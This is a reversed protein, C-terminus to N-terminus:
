RCSPWSNPRTRDETRNPGARRSSASPLILSRCPSGGLGPTPLPALFAFPAPEVPVPGRAARANIHSLESAPNYLSLQADLREIENLAEEGAARLSVENEGHLLIEFRTAMAHRALAVTQM